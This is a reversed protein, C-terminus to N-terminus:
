KYKENLYQQKSDAINQDTLFGAWKNIFDSSNNKNPKSNEKPLIIIEVESDPLHVNLPLKIIGDKSVRTEFRYAQM